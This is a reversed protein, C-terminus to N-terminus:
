YIENSLNKKFFDHFYFFDKSTKNSKESLLMSFVLSLAEPHNMELNWLM